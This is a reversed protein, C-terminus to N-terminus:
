SYSHLGTSLRDMRTDLWLDSKIEIKGQDDRWGASEQSGKQPWIESM